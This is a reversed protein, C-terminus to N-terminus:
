SAATWVESGSPDRCATNENAGLLMATFVIQGEGPFNAIVEQRPLFNGITRDNQIDSSVNHKHIVM